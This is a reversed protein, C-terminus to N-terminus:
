LCVPPMLINAAFVEFESHFYVVTPLLEIRVAERSSLSCNYFERRLSSEEDGICRWNNNNCWLNGMVIPNSEM